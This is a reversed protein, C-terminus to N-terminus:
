IGDWICVKRYITDLIIKHCSWTESSPTRCCFWSRRGTGVESDCLFIFPSFIELLIIKSLGKKKNFVCKLPFDPVGFNRPMQRTVVHRSMTRKAKATHPVVPGSVQATRQKPSREARPLAAWRVLMKKVALHIPCPHTNCRADPIDHLWMASLECPVHVWRWVSSTARSLGFDCIKVSCDQHRLVVLWLMVIFFLVASGNTRTWWATQQNWIRLPFKNDTM